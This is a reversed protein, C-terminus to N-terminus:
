MPKGPNRAEELPADVAKEAKELKPLLNGRQLTIDKDCGACHVVYNARIWGVTTINAQKCGPPM